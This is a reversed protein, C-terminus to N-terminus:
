MNAVESFYQRLILSLMEPLEHINRVVVYFEFPFTDLYNEVTLTMAGTVPDPVYSVQSMELISEKSSIGDVVVFVLMVKEERARRVLRRVTEHDECVGDSIIIQLQWLDANSSSRANEFIKLSKSCLQKIDTREQQFDFWRFVNAGVDQNFPRDFPHVLKVDEGFRVISLGGSELQTLAKLVLAISNLALETSGSESMSKSDDVAIMIQYQRKVPKTRRLWIKDKRFDSAIYSIIRKMNLRKGTKYDGRLKTALTPELILRLQECLGSALEQTALESQKWLDRATAIDLYPQEDKSINYDEQVHNEEDFREDEEFDLENKIADADLESREKREGVVGGQPKGDFDDADEAEQADDGSEKDVEMDDSEPKIPDAQEQNEDEQEEEDIALDEDISQVQDKNDAAALAQTDHKSNEGDVHQFEDPKTNAQEETEQKEEENAAEKIENRRRHFEKLSDGLQKISEKMQDRASDENVSDQEEQKTDMATEGSAGIDNQEEGVQEEAGEGQHGAETKVAADMDVDDENQNDAGEEGMATEDTEANTENEQNEPQTEEEDMDNGVEEDSNGADDGDAEENEAENEEAPDENTEQDETSPEDGEEAEQEDDNQDDEGGEASEDEEAKSKDLPDAQDEEDVDMPDDLTEEEEEKGSDQDDDLNMDEPLELAESEPVHDDLAEGEDNRVEDEQEGVDEEEGDDDNEDNADNENSEKDDKSEDQAEENDENAEMNQDDQVSNDPVNDLEKEKQDEKAEEDWMKEDIANPDLDDLDDIEEDLDEEEEKDDEEDDGDQDSMNELDGAMDGSMEVADDDENDDEDDKDKEENPQQAHETLDDDEEADKSNNNVGEGDGLGTGDHLNDDNKQESPPEPSCFGSTALTHLSKTLIFTSKSVNGFNTSVKALLSNSLKRYHSIVPMTFSLLAKCLVSSEDNHEIQNLTKQCTKLAQAFPTHRLLKVEKFLQQQSQSFWKDDDDSIADKQLELIQQVSLIGINTIRKLSREFDDVCNLAELSNCSDVFPSYKVNDMWDLVLLGLFGNKPSEYITTTLDRQLKTLYTKFVNVFELSEETCSKTKISPLSTQIQSCEALGASLIQKIKSGQFQPLTTLLEVAFDLIKHLNISYNRIQTSNFEFTPVLSAKLLSQKNNLLSEFDAYTSEIDAVSQALAVMAKRSTMLSVLLNEGAALGRELDVQPVEENGSSITGRLRPLLELIRFYDVDTMELSTASFSESNVLISNVTALAIKVDPKVSTSIGIRRLEKLTDSLLKHKQTKLAAVKKKNDDNLVSPTEKKLREMEGVVSQAYEYLNPLKHGAIRNTYVKMNNELTDIKKLHAARGNWSEVQQCLALIELKEDRTRPIYEMPKLSVSKSGTGENTFGNEIMSHVPTALLARYKRVIKYLNNHSKRSSQKLADVNVDKWSALLIVESVDKELTKKTQQIQEDLQPVFLDYFTILNSFGNILDIEDTAIQRVHNRFAKLLNLRSRYEGFKAESMFVNLAALIMSPSAEKEDEQNENEDTSGFLPIIIVEFLHFWWKGINKQIAMEEQKFLSKWSLLELRRWSVILGTLTDVQAKLSVQSSAFKEWETIYNFIVEIKHLLKNLPFSSPYGLFEECGRYINQLTAHEPWQKLLESIATYLSLIIKMAKAYENPSADHYFSIERDSETSFKQQYKQMVHLLSVLQSSNCDGNILDTRQTKLLSCLDAGEEVLQALPARTEFLYYQVYSEAISFYVDEFSDNSKVKENDLTMVEDFDPFLEMFDEDGDDLGKYKYLSSDKAESEELKMRRYYWRYYLAQFAETTVLELSNETHGNFFCVNIFYHMLKECLPSSNDISKSVLKISEFTDEVSDINLVNSLELGWSYPVQVAALDTQNQITMLGLGLKAAYVFGILIDNLDAYMSYNRTLRSIFSNSNKDFVGVKLVNVSDELSCAAALLNSIPEPGIDSEMFANWEDFLQDISETSRYVLLEEIHKEPVVPCNKEIITPEDGSLTSRITMWSNAIKELCSSFNVDVDLKVHEEIAPDLPSSPVFLEICIAAFLVWAKGLEGTNHNQSLMNVVTVLRKLVSAVLSDCREELLNSLTEYDHSEIESRSLGHLGLIEVIWDLLITSFRDKSSKLIPVSNEILQDRLATLDNLGQDLFKGPCESMDITKVLSTLITDNTFLPKTSDKDSLWLSDFIRPYPSFTEGKSAHVLSLTSKTSYNALQLLQQIDVKEFYSSCELINHVQTFEDELRNHREVVFTESIDQLRQITSQIAALIKDLEEGSTKEAVVDNYLNMILERLSTADQHADTYLKRVINDFESFLVCMNAFNNWADESKPYVQKFRNWIKVMSLGSKLELGVDLSTFKSAFTQVLAMHEHESIWESILQLYVRLQSLNQTKSSKVLCIWVSQLELLATYIKTDSDLFHDPILSARFIEEIISAVTKVCSYVQVRPQKRISRNLSVAASTELFSLENVKANLARLEVNDIITRTNLIGIAVEFLVTLDSISYQGANQSLIGHLYENFKVHLKQNGLLSSLNIASYSNKVDNVFGEHLFFNNVRKIMDFAPAEKGIFPTLSDAWALVMTTSSISLIASLASPLIDQLSDISDHISAFPRVSSHTASVFSSLPQHSLEDEDSYGLCRKDYSTSRAELDDMFVEICRNRMARSLEGYKPDVTLFLRFNAHPKLVRASGDKQSCENIVLSGNTELLSNLRDLVSPNCLNANDLVLWEGNTVARVLMGDFWNFTVKSSENELKKKLVEVKKFLAVLQDNLFLSVFQGLKQEFALFHASDIVMTEVMDLLALCTHMVSQNTSSSLANLVVLENLLAVSELIISNMDRTLDVQEYGGLIDMSDIDSNMAFESLKVGVVNALFRIFNTKGSNTPGTLVIPLNDNVSRIASELIRFNSQLPILLTDDYSNDYSLVTRRDMMSGCAQIYDVGIDYIPDKAEFEGFISVFLLRAQLKDEESRFRQCVIMDIFDGAELHFSVLSRRRASLLSMWRLTDRLNFEWPGGSQGWSKKVVVQEELESIFSIMKNCDSSSIEPFLRESILRLDETKLMDMYVVSFRNVFSKPLGKRGGGQYQPNQAAFVKFEPHCPFSRDLEPIYAEGRHDLCANLGELVSQSALNMEDLLVWEGNKMARLFPADQWVFEGTNGGDVPADSGFLDILDTQESLNIRVLPSGVAKALATVLSTKGVGPSGELLIPKKGQMARIVRMANAATTPASLNFVSIDEDIIERPIEFFGAKLMSQTVEIKVDAKEFLPVLHYGSIEALKRVCMLKHAMLAEENAALYATNNTGLADIFVMLAGNLFAVERPVNPGCANIFQVWALIDRLSIVGSTANGNSLMDAFWYSYDVLFECLSSNEESLKSAVIQKVDVPDEMSPVWIETFRNRLAPSLEKKGYDGGPNMTALFQFTEAAVIFTDDTGKEALLLSREPELVSNLRELVSDDALSIEDLLFFDGARMAQTLPGDNWEFLVSSERIKDEINTVDDANVQNNEDAVVAKKASHFLKIYDDYTASESPVEIGAQSFFGILSQILSARLEFRNRVPRQAGLIDGTETNQHANVTILERGLLQALIQCITTKGCGTEGVLLLPEKYKISTEVLVSLRRIAKTWVVSTNASMLKENELGRYYADMDLNVRMVKEITEKVVLKEETSRVREALLMYGNAALEEYGVADRLAWRFLDRLTAFSNKQEFLRSSQRQVSLQRYVEVIKKAYSPAIKCRERLIIELEDQPIDDFHLELFRNRFARSLVKRGGYLGPPNQTAFIMFDPHPHVVEQTEPIFLERNDDLLRNLAELVDTPALNLEDLVIWYGKRLAEVLVGERFVLKGSSDSVYTGLYEQLDTHEHNNIRVFNHGTINALYKIMSTKGASTPGQVLVPFKRTATARVLNLLNKEVFPTIIYNPTSPEEPGRRLWYHKFQVFDRESDAPAPPCRSLIQKANKLKSITYQEILPKLLNESEKNLLTLFAMCFGEFLARRLGYISVIERVYILTRTLTRISFHPKQGAGDVIKNADSLAKAALYLEAIDEVVWEDGVAYRNIYRDVIMTLDDRDKDPSHVYIESFRSRISSPLDRKGVDTSPNMCGFIRFDPHAITADIDGRESLLVSRQSSDESLLDAISELTDPSALNIEDLLLWEGNKIAKVLSGEVFNFVFSNALNSAQAEFNIIDQKFNNWEQLLVTKESMQLKRKKKASGDNQEEDSDDNKSLIGDAMKVAEKWLKIVNKWQNRNFCKSLLESFKANKKQSFTALFLSEFREQLPIAVTKTNVPKYGGLLDGSETQQSVNIVTLKKNMMKAIEQVITTKGTGTEGVLLVPECMQAAVGVQEMLRRSHKTRAFSTDNGLKKKVYLAKDHVSKKLLARGIEIKDEDDHVSPVYNTLYYNVRSPSVELIEGIVTVLPHLAGYETLASGFCEVAEFFINEYLTSAILDNASTIGSNLLMANCRSCFKMLDRISIVRPHSGKNLSIFSVSSYIKVVAEYVSIFKAILNQLIPFKASLIARIELESPTDVPICNWLRMGILDPLKLGSEDPQTRITAFLQFSNKAKIVEGRSPINLERKELLTLLISLVETPAKDIDEVLVWKGERVATTLVGSRWEFSGPKEGSTYAGTLLKADTQEGLHIKVIDEDCALYRAFQNILFTKGAGARGHLLVAKRKLYLNALSKLVQTAASTPVVSEQPEHTTLKTKTILVGCICTVSSSLTDRAFLVKSSGKFDITSPLLTYDLLSKADILDVFRYDINKTGEFDSELSISHIHTAMMNNEAVEAANLYISLVKIALFKAAAYEDGLSLIKYLKESTIHTKFRSPQSKYIRYLALLVDRIEEPSSAGDAFALLETKHLLTEIFSSCEHFIPSVRSLALFIHQGTIQPISISHAECYAKEFQERSNVWRGILELFIKKFSYFCALTTKPHLAFLALRNLNQDKSEKDNYRFSSPLNKQLFKVRYYEYRSTAEAFDVVISHDM